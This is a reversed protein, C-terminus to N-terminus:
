AGRSMANRWLSALARPLFALGMFMGPAVLAGWYFNDNRGVIMFLLGYGLYLLTAFEGAASRWGAWGLLMLTVLPGALEGPLFHLSSSMAINGLWGQLGRMAVWSSSPPDAATVHPAILGVHIVLLGVFAIALASWAAAERWQQRSLATAAMLLVYPLALERIMLALAAAVLAAVWRRGEGNGARHLGLSLLLLMGAWTEHVVLYRPNLILAAGPVLLAVAMRRHALGGPEAGFRQWWALLTATFLLMAAIWSGSAGLLAELYALTPLRVAPGPRVPYNGRRQEDVAASYYPEGRAVRAIIRDYLALDPDRENGASAATGTGVSGAQGAPRSAKEIPAILSALLILVVGLLMLRAALQPWAAFRDAPSVV